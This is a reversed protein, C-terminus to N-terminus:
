IEVRKWIQTALACAVFAIAWVIAVRPELALGTVSEATAGGHKSAVLGSFYAIPNFLNLARAIGAAVPGSFTWSPVGVLIGFVMWSFGVITGGKGRYAATLAQMIGYWMFAIGLGLGGVWFARPDGVVRDLMGLVALSVFTALCAIAFAGLIGAADIAMYRLALRERSIPKVFVFNAGDNEKNLSSAFITAMVVACYGCLGLILGLPFRLQAMADQPSLKRESQQDIVISVHGGFNAVSAAHISAIAIIAGIAVLITYIALARRVRSFEVYDM